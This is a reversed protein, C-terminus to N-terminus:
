HYISDNLTLAPSNIYNYFFMFHDRMQEGDKNSKNSSYINIAIKQIENHIQEIVADSYGKEDYLVLLLQYIKKAYTCTSYSNVCKVLAYNIVKESEKMRKLHIYSDAIYYITKLYNDCDWLLLSDMKAIATEMASISAEYMEKNYYLLGVVFNYRYSFNSNSDESNKVEQNFLKEAEKTEKKMLLMEVRNLMAESVVNKEASIDLEHVICILFLILCRM